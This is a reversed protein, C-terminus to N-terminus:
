PKMMDNEILFCLMKARADAESEEDWFTRYQDAKGSVVNIVRCIWKGCSKTTEIEHYNDGVKQPLMEGLESSTFVPVCSDYFGGSNEEIIWYPGVPCSIFYSEYKVGLDKLKKALELSCVQQELKM